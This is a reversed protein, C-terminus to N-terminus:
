FIQNTQFFDADVMFCCGSIMVPIEECKKYMKYYSSNENQLKKRFLYYFPKKSIVLKGMSLPSIFALAEDGKADLIKPGVVKVLPKTILSNYMKTVIDNEFIVDSNTIMYAKSNQSAHMLGLNNGSSYGKNEISQVYKIIYRDNNEEVYKKLLRLSDDTSKNDVVIIEINTMISHKLISNICDITMSPTNYNLIIISIEVNNM